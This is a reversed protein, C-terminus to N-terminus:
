PQGEKADAWEIFRRLLSACQRHGKLVRNLHWLTVGLDQAAATQTLEGNRLRSIAVPRLFACQLDHTTDNM